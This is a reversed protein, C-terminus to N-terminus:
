KKAFEIGAILEYIVDAWPSSNGNKWFDLKIWIAKTKCTIFWFGISWNGANIALVAKIKIVGM